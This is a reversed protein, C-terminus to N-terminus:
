VRQNGCHNKLFVNQAYVDFIGTLVPRNKDAYRNCQEDQIDTNFEVSKCHPM